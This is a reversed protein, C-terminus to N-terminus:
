RFMKLQLTQDQSLAFALPPSLVHLDLSRKPPLPSRTLLVYIVHRKTPSLKPFSFSIGCIDKPIFAKPRWFLPRRGM